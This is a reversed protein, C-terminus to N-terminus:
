AGGTRRTCRRRKKLRQWPKNQNNKANGDDYCFFLQREGNGESQRRLFNEYFSPMEAHCILARGRTSLHEFLGKQMYDHVLIKVPLAGLPDEVSVKYAQTKGTGPECLCITFINCPEQHRERIEFICEPGMLCSTITLAKLLLFEPQINIARGNSRDVNAYVQSSCEVPFFDTKSQTQSQTASGNRTLFFLAKIFFM